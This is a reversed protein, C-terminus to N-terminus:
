SLNPLKLCWPLPHVKGAQAVACGRDVHEDFHSVYGIELSWTLVINDLQVWWFRIKNHELSVCVIQLQIHKKNSNIFLIKLFM